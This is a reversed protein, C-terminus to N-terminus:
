LQRFCSCIGVSTSGKHGVVAGVSYWDKWVLSKKSDSTFFCSVAEVAKCCSANTVM